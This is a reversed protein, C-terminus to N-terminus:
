TVRQIPIIALRFTAIPKNVAQAHRLLGRQELLTCITMGAFAPIWFNKFRYSISELYLCEPIVGKTKHLLSKHPIFSAIDTLFSRNQKRPSSM